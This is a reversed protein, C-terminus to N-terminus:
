RQVSDNQGNATSGTAPLHSASNSLGVNADHDTRGNVLAVDGGSSFTECKNRSGHGANLQRVSRQSLPGGYNGNSTAPAAM